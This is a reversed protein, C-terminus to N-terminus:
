AQAEFVGLIFSYIFKLSCEEGCNLLVPMRAVLKSFEKITETKGAGAAGVVAAGKNLKL